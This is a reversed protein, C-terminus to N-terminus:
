VRERCSARGIKSLDFPAIGHFKETNKEAFSYGKGKLTKVHLFLPGEMQKAKSLSDVLEKLNHGDISGLFIYGFNEAVNSPFLFNKVSIEMRELTDKIATAQIKDVFSRIENRLSLYRSSLMVKGLFKSLSGVNRGISM